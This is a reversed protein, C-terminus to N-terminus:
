HDINEEDRRAEMSASRVEAGNQEVQPSQDDSLSHDPELIEQLLDFIKSFHQFDEKTGNECLWNCLNTKEDENIEWKEPINESKGRTTKEHALTIDIFAPKVSKAKELTEKSFLNEIGKEIPHNSEQPIKRKFMNGENKPGGKHECDYLLVVKQPVFNPPLKGIGNWINRLGPAGNGDRIEIKELMSEQGLLKAARQIYKEDTTGEVFLIPKQAAKVATRIDDSFRSTETFAQYANAFESFEEPDIPQGQPLRYLALGDEGFLDKMGLVFLPSHTTIVFQIKPFMRILKPLIKYQHVAHLHLDIEDVVVIGRIDEAKTFPSGCLDFDRLISLFLNLLSTEGSSMQFIDPILQRKNEMISILRNLRRGIGFRTNQSKNMVIRVIQLAIDYISTANGSHGLHVPLSFQQDTNQVPFPINATQYEFVARDYIVDFLWNKNDHLPSCNILKRSTYGEIHKLDMYQARANLNEENLWAPDEFRNPPFYLVSNQSFISKIKDKNELTFTSNFNDSQGLNIRKWTNQADLGPLGEPIGSDKQKPYVLRMEEIFLKDEFDVRAFYSERESKIYSGSRIKFVKGIEVEPTEPYTIDKASILGNVIHSLLISKGSGNEGVLVVSKPVDDEFPFTIDLQDIPGYNIIQIRKAYM